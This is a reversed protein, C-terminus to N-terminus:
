SRKRALVWLYSVEHDGEHQQEVSDRVITFGSEDVLRRTTDPDYSSFYMPTGLWEGVGGPQDDIEACFLLLGSRELWGHILQFMEPLRQRPLHDFTYFATVAAFTGAPYHLQLVDGVAFQGAPVNTRALEVQRASADVGTLRHRQTVRPGAPLGNGCGLDLVHEGEPVQGLLEDLWRLRPWAVDRELAAYRDAVADYGRAVLDQPQEIM